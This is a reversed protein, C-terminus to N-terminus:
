EYPDTIERLRTLARRLQSAAQRGLHRTWEAEVQAEAGRAVTIAAEGREAITVLRARADRPDPVRRVYGARELQDVLFAATQKTVRAQEALDTVRTGNPGIRAFVRGQAPTLDDFGASALADLVRAEMARYAIFCLLGLNPEDTGRDASM